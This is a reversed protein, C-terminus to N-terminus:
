RVPLKAVNSMIQDRLLIVLDRNGTPLNAPVRANVQWLGVWGPTLGAFLVEFEIGSDTFVRVPESTHSLPSEPAPHGTPVPPVPRGLGTAYIIIVEGPVAPDSPTVLLYDEAHQVAARTGDLTFIAPQLPLVPVGVIAASAGNRTITVTAAGSDPIEYPTQFNIQDWGNVRAVAYIPARIGNVTVSTDELQEPWPTQDAAVVGTASTLDLGFVTGLGGPSLGAVYSAANVIGAETFLPPSSGDDAIKTVSITNHRSTLGPVTWAFGRSATGLVYVGGTGDLAIDRGYDIGEGGLYTSYVLGSGGAALKTVFAESCREQLFSTSCQRCPSPPAEAQIPRVTPFDLTDTTGTVYAAGDADVAISNAWEGRTLWYTADVEQGGLFTSYVLASGAANLKAVFGDESGRLAGQFTDPSVPFGASKTRGVVFANGAADVAIGHAADKQGAGLYTSYLWASADANLKAVFADSSGGGYTTQFAGATTPMELSSITGAVYAHGSSDVAISSPAGHVYTSYMLATGAANIKTIFGRGGAPQVVGPTAPFDTSETYGAVYANGAEDLALSTAEDKETGGLFTSYLLAAGTPNLKFVFADSSGGSFERIPNVTPFNPGFTRGTVVINGASDVAIGTAWQGNNGGLYTSYVLKGDPDFKTVFVDYFSSLDPDLPDVTPFNSSYTVGAVYTNGGADVALSEGTDYWCRPSSVSQLKGSGGFGASYVLLPDIVLARSTDYPGLRFAVERPGQLAYGGDIVTKDGGARQYVHPKKQRLEGSGARIVLDGGPDIRLEEPGDFVLRIRGPDAGPAVVFDYELEGGTGYYILDIGPYVNRYRVRAFSPVGTRWRDPDTGLFYNSKAPLRDLGQMEPSPNAGVLRMRVVAGAAECGGFRLVADRRSLFLAYDKARAFYEVSDDIQGRNVEFRLPQSAPPPNPPSGFAVGACLLAPGLWKRFALHSHWM